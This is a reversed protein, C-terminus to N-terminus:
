SHGGRMTEANVRDKERDGANKIWYGTDNQNKDPM